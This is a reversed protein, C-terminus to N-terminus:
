RGAPDKRKDGAVERILRDFSDGAARESFKELVSRRGRDAVAEAFVRDALYSNLRGALADADGPPTLLGTEGDRIIEPIGGVSAGVVPKGMSMAEILVMGFAEDCTSPLAFVDMAAYLGQVDSRIGTFIVRESIGLQGASRLLEERKTGEGVFMLKLTHYRKRLLSAASLLDFVGKGNELKGVYGIVIDAPLLGLGERVAQRDVRGPDFRPLFVFNRIVEVKGQRVGSALLANRVTDSVAVIRDVSHNMLHRTTRRISDTQHRIFIVRAGALRAALASPWYERGNNALVVSVSEKRCVAVIKRMAGIDGSNRVVIRRAQLSRGEAQTILTGEASCGVIVNYGKGALVSALIDSHTEIGGFCRATGLNMNVLLINM